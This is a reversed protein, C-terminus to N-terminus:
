PPSIHDLLKRAVAKAEDATCKERHVVHRGINVEGLGRQPGPKFNEALMVSAALELDVQTRHYDWPDVTYRDGMGFTNASAVRFEVLQGTPCIDDADDRSFIEFVRHTPRAGTPTIEIQQNQLGGFLVYSLLDWTHYHIKSITPQKIHIGAM